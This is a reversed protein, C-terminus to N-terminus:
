PEASRCCSGRVPGSLAPLSDFLVAGLEQSGSFRGRFFPNLDAAAANAATPGDSSTSPVYKLLRSVPSVWVADRAIARSISIM